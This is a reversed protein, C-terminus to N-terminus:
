ASRHFPQSTLTWHNGVSPLSTVLQNTTHNAFNERYLNLYHGVSLNGVDGFVVALGLFGETAKSPM